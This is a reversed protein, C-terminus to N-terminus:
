RAAPKSERPVGLLEARESLWDELEDLTGQHSEVLAAIEARLGEDDPRLAKRTMKARLKRVQELESSLGAAIEEIRANLAVIPAVPPIPPRKQWGAHALFDLEEEYRTSIPYEDGAVAENQVVMNTGRRRSEGAERGVAIL